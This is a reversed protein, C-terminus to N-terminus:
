SKLSNNTNSNQYKMNIIIATNYQTVRKDTDNM